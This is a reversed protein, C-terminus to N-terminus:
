RHGSSDCREGGVLQVYKDLLEFMKEDMHTYLSGDVSEIFKSGKPNNVLFNILRRQRTDTWGDEMSSCGYKAKIEDHGKLIVRTHKSEKKLYTVRVKHYSPPNMSPGFQGLAEIAPRFSYARVTNFPIGMDYIWQCFKQGAYERMKKRNEYFFKRGDKNKTQKVIGDADQMFYMDIPGM